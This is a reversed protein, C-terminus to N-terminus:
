DVFMREGAPHTQRMTPWLRGRWAAHLDCFRRYGYGDAQGAQYEEWLLLTVGPKRRESLIRAWDPQPQGLEAM